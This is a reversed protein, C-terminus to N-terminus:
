YDNVKDVECQRLLMKEQKKKPYYTFFYFHKNEAVLKPHEGKTPELAKLTKRNLEKQDLFFGIKPKLDCLILFYFQWPKAYHTLSFLSGFSYM